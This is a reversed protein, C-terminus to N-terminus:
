AHHGPMWGSRKMEVSKTSMEDGLRNEETQWQPLNSGHPHEFV